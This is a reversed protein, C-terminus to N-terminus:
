SSYDEIISDLAKYVADWSNTDLILQRANKGIEDAKDKNNLLVISKQALENDNQGIMLHTGDIGHIGQNGTVTTVVPCECAMAELLKNQIGSGGSHPHIFLEAKQLYPVMSPVDEHIEISDSKLNRIWDPMWAGVLMLRSEPKSKLIEPLINETIRKVMLQNAWVDMRGSFLLGKRKSNDNPVFQETNTGNTLLRYEHNSNQKKMNSIDEESVFTTLDFSDVIQPEYSSLKKYEWWRVLKQIPQKTEEFSRKQYIVRCDEAILVKPFGQNKLYEATRMFFSFGLNFDISDILQKVKNFYTKEHFFLIELPFKGPIKPLIELARKVKSIVIFHVNMGLKGLEKKAEDMGHTGIHFSVLHVNHHKGLHKLLYYPKVRDGGFLPWPPRATLFLINKKDTM